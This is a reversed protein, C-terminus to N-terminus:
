ASVNTHQKPLAYPSTGGFHKRRALRIPDQPYNAWATPDAPMPTRGRAIDRAYADGAALDAAYTALGALVAGDSPSGPVPTKTTRTFLGFM